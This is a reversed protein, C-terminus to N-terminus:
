SCGREVCRQFAPLHNESSARQLQKLVHQVDPYKKSLDLLRNYMEANEIEAEIGARCADLLSAPTQIRSDWNDEPIDIGYKKFLPLLAEIHRGEAEVINIFPRVEGFKKIVHRYTARAKYEDNIAEVLINNLTESMTEEWLFSSYKKDGLLM